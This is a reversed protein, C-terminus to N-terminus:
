DVQTGSTCLARVFGRWQQRDQAQTTTTDWTMKLEKMEREVTRRWTEKPRGRKRKGDPTWRMAVRPIANREMRCTHGIWRWRRERVETVVPRTGTRSRLEENSIKNPWFVGLIRRLCRNQFTELKHGIKQTMKWCEAGYLLVSLVNSKYIRTKTQLSINKARWIKKLTAFAYMAKGMRARVDKEADGDKAVKSGLYDFTETEELPENDIKIPTDTRNNIKMVKSKKKNIKLGLYEATEKFITTKEQMDQHRSSLLGVDDAYDLDELTSTLTWRIGRKQEKLTEKLVWEMALVFLIPSLLCGQKVGTRVLFSETLNNGCVVRCNPNIYLTRIVNVIKQPIGHHRLIKWLSERHISDFAKEFDIFNVYVCSNWEVSQELIQRLTFIQDTCSKGARFGAQEQRTINDVAKKIRNLIVRCFVKMTTPLLTIGRWNNCDSLDGKKPLKIILGTEWEKPMEEQKWINNLIQHLIRVTIEGGAKVMEPCIEDEGPAKGAKLTKIAERVEDVTIEGTDIELDQEAEPIEATRLPDPRNLITSFHERWRELTEKEGSIIKGEKDKVPMDQQGQSKGALKKTITYVKKMDKKKAAEEAEDTLKNIHDKKDQRASLKVQRDKARYEQDLREKLRPSKATLLRKKIEKRESIRSWTEQSIWEEKQRKRYGLVKEGAEQMAQNFGEISTDESTELVSFRNQLVLSFEKAATKLKATDYRRTKMEGLKVRRLKLGLEAVVLNHDSGIDAQRKV